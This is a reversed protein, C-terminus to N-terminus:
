NSAQATSVPGLTGLDPYTDELGIDTIEGTTADVVLTLVSGTPEAAGPPVPGSTAFKGRLAVLYSANDGPVVDGSDVLNAQSRTTVASYQISTPSPDGAKAAAQSAISAIQGQSIYDGSAPRPSSGSAFSSAAFAVGAAVTIGLLVATTVHRRNM